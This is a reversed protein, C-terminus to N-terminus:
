RPEPVPEDSAAGRRDSEAPSGVYRRPVALGQRHGRTHDGPVAAVQRDPNRDNVHCGGQGSSWGSTFVPARHSTGRLVAGRSLDGTGGCGQSMGHSPFRFAACAPRPTSRPADRKLALCYGVLSARVCRNRGGELALRSIFLIASAATRRFLHRRHGLLAETVADLNVGLLHRPRRLSHSRSHHGRRRLVPTTGGRGCPYRTRRGVVERDEVVEVVLCDGLDCVPVEIGWHLCPM